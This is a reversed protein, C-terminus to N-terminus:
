KRMTERIAFAFGVQLFQFQGVAVPEFAASGVLVLCAHVIRIEHCVPVSAAIGLDTAETCPLAPRCATM